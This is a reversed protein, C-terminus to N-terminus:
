LRDGVDGPEGEALDLGDEGLELPPEEEQGPVIFPGHAPRIWDGDLGRRMSQLEGVTLRHVGGSPFIRDRCGEHLPAQAAFLERRREFRAAGVAVLREHDVDLARTPTFSAVASGREQERGSDVPLLERFGM